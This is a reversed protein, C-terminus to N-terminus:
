AHAAGPRQQENVGLEATAHPAMLFFAIPLSPPAFSMPVSNFFWLFVVLLFEIPFWLGM